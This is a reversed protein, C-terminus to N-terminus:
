DALINGSKAPVWICYFSDPAAVTNYVSCTILCATWHGEKWTESKGPCTSHPILSIHTYRRKKAQMSSMWLSSMWPKLRILGLKWQKKCRNQSKDTTFKPNDDLCDKMASSTGNQLNFRSVRRGWRPVKNYYNVTRSFISIDIAIAELLLANTGM